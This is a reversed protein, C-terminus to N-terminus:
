WEVIYIDRFNVKRGSNDRIKENTCITIYGTMVGWSAINGFSNYKTTIKPFFHKYPSNKRCFHGKNSKQKSSWVWGKLFTECRSLVSDFRSSFAFQLDCSQENGFCLVQFIVVVVVFGKNKAAALYNEFVKTTGGHNKKCLNIKFAM